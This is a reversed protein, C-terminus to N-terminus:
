VIRSCMTKVPMTASPGILLKPVPFVEDDPGPRMAGLRPFGFRLFLWLGLLVLLSNLLPGLFQFFATLGRRVERLAGAAGERM